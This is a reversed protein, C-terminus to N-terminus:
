LRANACGTRIDGYRVDTAKQLLPNWWDRHDLYWKVTMELGDSMSCQPEVNLETMLKKADMAYRKDHGPRDAVFSILNGYPESSPCLRDMLSCIANVIDINPRDSHGGVVYTEGVRGQSVLTHLARAHDEVFLWDRMQTGTGYVPVEKGQILNVITLPILKEPFQFPGYNNSCNSVIVPLGYTKHWSRVLHDAAAKSAAYPSSPDYPTSETFYENDKASGYVEDTSVHLFRFEQKTEHSLGEWRRRAAELLNFTGLINTEVFLRPTGISRDVHTEAALHMIWDPKFSDLIADIRDRDCVDAQIFTLTSDGDMAPLSALNGAYTLKDVVCVSNGRGLLQRVVASGIFGAGGTVLVRPLPKKKTMICYSAFAKGISRIALNSPNSSSNTLKCFDAV